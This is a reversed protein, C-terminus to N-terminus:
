RVRHARLTTTRSSVALLSRFGCSAALLGALRSVHAFRNRETPYLARGEPILGNDSSGPGMPIHSVIAAATVGPAHQMADNIRVFTQEAHAPEAYATPPLTVRATLVGQPDFGM